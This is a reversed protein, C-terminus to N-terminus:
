AGSLYKAVKADLVVAGIKARYKYGLSQGLVREDIVSGVRYGFFPKIARAFEMCQTARPHTMLDQDEDERYDALALRKNEEIFRSLRQHILPQLVGFPDPIDRLKAPTKLVEIYEQVILEISKDM